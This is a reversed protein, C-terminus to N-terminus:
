ANAGEEEELLSPDHMTMFVYHGYAAHILDDVRQYVEFNHSYMQQLRELRPILRELEKPDQIQNIYDKSPLSEM